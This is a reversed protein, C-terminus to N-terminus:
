TYDNKLWTDKAILASEEQLAVVLFGERCRSDRLSEDLVIVGTRPPIDQASQM